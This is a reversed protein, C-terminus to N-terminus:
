VAQAYVRIRERPIAVPMEEGPRLKLNRIDHMAVDARLSNEGLDGGGFRARFFSGLFEGEEIRARFSNPRGDACRAGCSPAGASSIPTAPRRRCRTISCGPASIPACPPSHPARCGSCRRRTPM